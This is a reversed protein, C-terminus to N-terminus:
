QIIQLDLYEVLASTLTDSCNPKVLSGQLNIIKTKIIEKACIINMIKKGVTQGKNFQQFVIFYLILGAMDIITVPIM